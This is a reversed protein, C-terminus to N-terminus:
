RKGFEIDPGINSHRIPRTHVKEAKISGARQRDRRRPCDEIQGIVSGRHADLTATVAQVILTRTLGSPRRLEAGAIFRDTRREGRGNTRDFVEKRLSVAQVMVVTSAVGVAEVNVVPRPGQLDRARRDRHVRHGHGIM